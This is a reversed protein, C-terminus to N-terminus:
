DVAIRKGPALGSLAEVKDSVPRGKEIQRTDLGDEDVVTVTELQGIAKVAQARVWLSKTVEERFTPAGYLGPACNAKPQSPVKM